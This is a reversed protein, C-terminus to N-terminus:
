ALRRAVLDILASRGAHASGEEIVAEYASLFSLEWDGFAERLMEETYLNEVQSPGGTGLDIQERTYGHLLLTGGPRVARKMGAFMRRRLEPGAFQVFIAVVADFSRESWDYTDADDVSFAVDVGRAQALGRAKEVAVPSADWATVNAGRESLWVSNRGEGDAVCLVRDGPAVQNAHRTLFAAPETGFLFANEAYRADWDM